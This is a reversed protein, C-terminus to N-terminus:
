NLLETLRNAHMWGIMTDSELDLILTSGDEWTHTFGFKVKRLRLDWWENVEVVAYPPRIFGEPKAWTRLSHFTPITWLEGRPIPDLNLSMIWRQQHIPEVQLQFFVMEPEIIIVRAVALSTVKGVIESATPEPRLVWYYIGGTWCLLIALIPTILRIPWIRRRKRPKKKPEEATETLPAKHIPTSAPARGTMPDM